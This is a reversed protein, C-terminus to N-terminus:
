GRLLRGFVVCDPDREPLPAIYPPPEDTTLVHDIKDQGLLALAPDDLEERRPLPNGADGQWGTAIMTPHALVHDRGLHIFAVGGADPEELSAVFRVLSDLSVVIILGGVFTGGRRLPVNLNLAPQGLEALWVIDQWLPASAEALGSAARILEIEHNRNLRTEIRQGSWRGVAVTHLDADSFHLGTVQPLGSLAGRLTAAVQAQDTPDLRGAAVMEGLDAALATAPDLMDRIRTEIVDLRISAKDTLLDFSHDAEGVQGAVHAAQDPQLALWHTGARGTGRDDEGGGVVSVDGTSEGDGLM